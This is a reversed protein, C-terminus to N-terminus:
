KVTLTTQQGRQAHGPLSCLLTYTGPKLDVELTQAGESSSFTPTQALSGSADTVTLNHRMQGANTVTIKVKGAPVESQSLDIAWEKLTAQLTAESGTSAGSSSTAPTAASSADTGGTTPTEAMAMGADATPTDASMASGVADTAVTNTPQADAATGTTATPVDNVATPQDTTGSTTGCAALSGLALVGLVGVITMHGIRDRILKGSKTATM